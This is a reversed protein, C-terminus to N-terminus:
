CLTSRLKEGIKPRYGNIFDQVPMVKKNEPQILLINLHGEKAKVIMQKKTVSVITGPEAEGNSNESLESNFIKIIKNRFM